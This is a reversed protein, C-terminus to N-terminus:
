DGLLWRLWNRHRTARPRLAIAKRFSIGTGPLGVSVTSRPGISVGAGRVGVRLSVGSRSFGLSVGRFLRARKYFRIGSM